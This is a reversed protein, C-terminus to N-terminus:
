FKFPNRPGARSSSTVGGFVFSLGCCESVGCTQCSLARLVPDRGSIVPVLSWCSACVRSLSSPYLGLAKAHLSFLFRRGYLVLCRFLTFGGPGIPAPLSVALDGGPYHFSEM